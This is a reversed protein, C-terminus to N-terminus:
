PKRWVTRNVYDVYSHIIQVVKKSVHLDQYGAVRDRAGRDEVGMVTRCMSRCHRSPGASALMQRRMVRLLPSNWLDALTLAENDTCHWVARHHRRAERLQDNWAEVTIGMAEAADDPPVANVTWSMACPVPHLVSETASLSTWPAVCRVDPLGREVRSWRM